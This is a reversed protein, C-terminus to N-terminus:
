GWKLRNQRYASLLHFGRVSRMYAVGSHLISLCIRANSEERKYRCISLVVYKGVRAQPFLGASLRGILAMMDAPCSGPHVFIVGSWCSHVQRYLRCGGVTPGHELRTCGGVLSLPSGKVASTAQYSRSTTNGGGLVYAWSPVMARRRGRDAELGPYGSLGM